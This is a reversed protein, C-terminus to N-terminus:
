FCTKPTKMMCTELSKVVVTAAAAMAPAKVRAYACVDPEVDPEAASGDAGMCDPEVAMGSAVVCAGAAVDPGDDPVGAPEVGIALGDLESVM